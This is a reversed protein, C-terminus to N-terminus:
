EKGEQPSEEKQEKSGDAKRGEDGAAAAAQMMMRNDPLRMQEWDVMDRSKAWLALWANFQTPDGSSMWIQLYQPVVTQGIENINQVTQDKNPKRATGSEVHYEYESVIHDIDDDMVLDVWLQTYQGYQKIPEADPGPAQGPPMTIETIDEGFVPAVDEDTMLYRAAIAELRAAESMWNDVANAMDDPRVSLMERKVNAEAASRMQQSSRGALNLETVGTADEFERKLAAYLNWINGNEEPMKLFECLKDMTGPHANNIELLELDKGSLIRKKIEEDLSKPIVIFARSTIKVRSMLFSLIWNICKQYGMAPAVHSMPWVCRPVHHFTLAAFPWPNSRNLYYPVPWELRQKIEEEMGGPAEAVEEPLNLPYPHDPTIALYAYDGYQELAAMVEEDEKDEFTPLRHGVGMRSYIEYYVILDSSDGSENEFEAEFEDVSESDAQGKSSIDTAKLTGPQLEFEREVEWVPRRRRRAIWKADCLKEVDPDILLHDVSDYQLCTVKRDNTNDIEPWLLGLGKILAETIADRAKGKLNTEGPTYNMYWEILGARLKDETEKLQRELANQQDAMMQQQQMQIMQQEAMAMMQQQMAPDVQGQSQMMQSQMQMM